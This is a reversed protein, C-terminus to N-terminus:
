VLARAEKSCEVTWFLDQWRVALWRLEVTATHLVAPFGRWWVRLLEDSM